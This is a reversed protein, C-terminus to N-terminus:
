WGIDVLSALLTEQFPQNGEKLATELKLFLIRLIKNLRPVCDSLHARDAQTLPIHEGKLNESEVEKGEIWDRHFILFKVTRSFNLRVQLDDDRSLFVSNRECILAKTM